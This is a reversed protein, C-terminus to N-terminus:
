AGSANWNDAPTSNLNNVASNPLSIAEVIFAKHVKDTTVVHAGSHSSKGHIEWLYTAGATLGKFYGELVVDENDFDDFVAVRMDNFSVGDIDTVYGTHGNNNNSYLGFFAEAHASEGDIHKLHFSIRIKILGNSPAVFSIDTPHASDGSAAFSSLIALSTGLPM